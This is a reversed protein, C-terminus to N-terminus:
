RKANSCIITNPTIQEDTTQPCLLLEDLLGGDFALEMGPIFIPSPPFAAGAILPIDMSLSASELMCAM